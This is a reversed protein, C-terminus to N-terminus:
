RSSCNPPLFPMLCCGITFNKRLSWMSEVRCFNAFWGCPVPLQRPLVNTTVMSRWVHLFPLHYPSLPLKILLFPCPCHPNYPMTSLRVHVKRPIIGFILRFLEPLHRSLMPPIKRFALSTNPLFLFTKVPLLSSTGNKEYKQRTTVNSSM